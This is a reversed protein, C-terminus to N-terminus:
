RGTLRLIACLLFAFLVWMGISFPEGKEGGSEFAKAAENTDVKSEPRAPNSFWDRIKDMFSKEHTQSSPPSNTIGKLHIPSTASTSSTASTAPTVSPSSTVDKHPIISSMTKEGKEKIKDDETAWLDTYDESKGLEAM